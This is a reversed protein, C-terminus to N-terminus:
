LTEFYLVLTWCCTTGTVRQESNHVRHIKGAIGKKIINEKKGIFFFFFFNYRNGGFQFGLLAGHYM